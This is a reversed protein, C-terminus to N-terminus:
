YVSVVIEYMTSIIPICYLIIFSIIIKFISHSHISFLNYNGQAIGDKVNINVIKSLFSAAKLLNEQVQNEVSDNKQGSKSSKKMHGKHAAMKEKKEREKEEQQTNYDKEYADYIESLM